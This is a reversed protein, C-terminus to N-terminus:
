ILLYNVQMQLRMEDEKYTRIPMNISCGAAHFMGDLKIGDQKIMEFMNAINSNDELDCVYYSAKNVQESVAKLKEENRGVLLVNYGEVCLYKATELGIGSTSGTILINKQVSSSM